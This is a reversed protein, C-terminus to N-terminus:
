ALRRAIQKVTRGAAVDAAAPLLLAVGTLLKAM